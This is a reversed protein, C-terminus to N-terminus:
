GGTAKPAVAATMRALTRQNHRAKARVLEAIREKVEAPYGFFNHELAPDLEALAAAQETTLDVPDPEMAAMEPRLWWDTFGHQQHWREYIPTAPLPVLVGRPNFFDVVPALEAMFSATRELGELGEEPFGFMFNVVTRIDHDSAAHVAATVQQPRQGKGIAKLVVPDGSEIGFNIAVCGAAAMDALLEPRVMNAPTICSWTTGALVDDRRIQDCFKRVREKNATFADDWFAFHRMDATQRLARLEALVDANSRWRFIRGTVHNACFTCRAPCGRSTIAGSSTVGGQVNYWYAQWCGDATLPLAMGDLDTLAEAPRQVGDARWIGPLAPLNDKRKNACFADALAVIIREGEGTVAVDFGHRLAEAPRATVHPGGAVTLWPGLPLDSLLGYGAWANHTFLTMGVIDPKFDEIAAAVDAVDGRWRRAAMDVGRVEHGAALLAAALYRQGLYPEGLRQPLPPM